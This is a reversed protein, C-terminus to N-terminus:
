ASNLVRLRWEHWKMDTGLIPLKALPLKFREDLPDRFAHPNPNVHHPAQQQYIIVHADTPFVFDPPIPWPFNDPWNAPKPPAVPPNPASM